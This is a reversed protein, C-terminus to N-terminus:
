EKNVADKVTQWLRLGDEKVDALEGVKAEETIPDSMRIDVDSSSGEADRRRKHRTGDNEGSGNMKGHERKSMEIVGLLDFALLKKLASTTTLIWPLVVCTFNAPTIV